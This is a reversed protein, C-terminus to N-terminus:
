FGRLMAPDPAPPGAAPRGSGRFLCPEGAEQGSGRDVPGGRPGTRSTGTYSLQYHVDNTIIPDPTRTGEGAGSRGERCREACSRPCRCGGEAPARKSRSMRIAVGLASVQLIARRSRCRNRGGPGVECPGRGASVEGASARQLVHAAASATQGLARGPPAEPKGRQDPLGQRRRSRGRAPDREGDGHRRRALSM